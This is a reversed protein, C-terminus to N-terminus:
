LEIEWLYGSRFPNDNEGAYIAGDPMVCVDHIQFAAVGTNSDKLAGILEWIENAPNFKLIECEGDRGTVGYACGDPGLQMAALRSRRGRGEDGVAQFLFEANGTRPDVRYLAGGGGSVYLCGTGFNFLGEPKEYGYAGDKRPLGKDLYAIKDTNPDYKYFRYTDAGSFSQWARTVSWVGWVCGDDDLCINEGQAMTMGSSTPGLWRSEMTELNFSVLNEPTFTQGYITRRSEDLVISQIYVHPMPIGLKAIDNTAPNYKVISAGPAEWFRDVDHLLAQAAYLCGDQSDRVLSRHFKADYPDRIRAYDPDFWIKEKRNWGQFIDADFSTIGAFVTDTTPEHCLCDFSIWGKRWRADQMYDAYEWHDETEEAWQNGFNIDQLKLANVQM